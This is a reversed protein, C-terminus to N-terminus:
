RSLLILILLGSVIYREGAHRSKLDADSSAAHNAGEGCWSRGTEDHLRCFSTVM